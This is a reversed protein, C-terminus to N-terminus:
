LRLVRDMLLLDAFRLSEVCKFQWLQESTVRGGGCQRTTQGDISRRRWLGYFSRWETDYPSRRGGTRDGVKRVVLVSDDSIMSGGERLKSMVLSKNDIEKRRLIYINKIKM